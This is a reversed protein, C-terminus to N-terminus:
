IGQQCWENFVQLFAKEVKRVFGVEDMFPSAEMQSRLSSRIVALATLDGALEVLKEVYEQETQAIWEPRGVGHLITSGIRGVIPRGALTVYPVGMHLGEILTTGSNHPFCDLALDVSRYVNWPPSEFGIILRDEYIGHKAFEALLDSRAAAHQYNFSDFRIKASPLRRLLESWVRITRHNIRVARSLCGFTVYGNQLAPLTGVEGTNEPPRYAYNPVAVRLPKEACHKEAGIPLSIEDTLIYDIAKLGTTCGYGLWTMSIPAPKRAFVALRNGGTHGALDVLIDIQDEKILAVLAEDNFQHTTRWQDVYGKYRQTYDDEAPIEAYAFIEFRSKDHNALLPEIFHRASHRRFDPSCYGVRIKRNASRLNEYQQPLSPYWHSFGQAEVQQYNEFVEDDSLDPHYNTLFLLAGSARPDRPNLAFGKSLAALAEAHRGQKQYFNGLTVWADAYDPRLAVARRALSEVEEPNKDQAELATALNNLLEHSPEGWSLAARLISEAQGNANLHLYVAGLNIAAQTYKPNLVLAKSLHQEAQAFRRLKALVAGYNMHAGALEPNIELAKLFLPESAAYQELGIHACALNVWLPAEIPTLQLAKELVQVAAAYSGQAMYIASLLQLAEGSGPNLHLAREALTKAEDLRQQEVLLNGLNICAAPTPEIAISRRWHSEAVPIKGILKSLLGLDSLLHVDDPLLENLRTLAAWASDIEGRQRHALYAARWGAPHDPFENILATAAQQLCTWDQQQLAKDLQTLQQHDPSRARAKLAALDDGALGFSEGQRIVSQADAHQGLEILLQIYALWNKRKAPEQELAQKLLPLAARRLGKLVLESAALLLDASSKPRPAAAATRSIFQKKSM